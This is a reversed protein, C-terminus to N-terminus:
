SLQTPCSVPLWANAAQKSRRWIVLILMGECDCGAPLSACTRLNVERGSKLVLIVGERLVRVLEGCRMLTVFGVAVMLAIM